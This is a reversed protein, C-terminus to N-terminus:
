LSLLKNCCIIIAYTMKCEQWCLILTGVEGCGHWCPCATTNVTTKIHKESFNRFHYIVSKEQNKLLIRAFLLHHSLRYHPLTTGVRLVSAFTPELVGLRRGGTTDSPHSYDSSFLFFPVESSSLRGLSHTTMDGCAHM